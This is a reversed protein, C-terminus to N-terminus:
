TVEVSVSVSSGGGPPPLSEQLRTFADVTDDLGDSVQLAISDLVDLVPALLEAVNLERLADVVEDYIAIPAELLKQASLKGIIRTAADRVANLLSILVGIPDFSQLTQKLADFAALQPQLLVNPSYALVQTRVEQFVSQIGDIIPQLDFLGILAQLDAIATRIPTLMDDVLRTLRDRLARFLRTFLAALREPTAVSLVRQLIAGFGTQSGGLGLYAGLQRVKALVPALPAFAQRLQEVAVDAESMGTRRLSDALTAASGLV